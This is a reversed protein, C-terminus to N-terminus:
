AIKHEYSLRSASEKLSEQWTVLRAKVGELRAPQRRPRQQLPPLNYRSVPPIIPVCDLESLHLQGRRHYLDLTLMNAGFTDERAPERLALLLALFALGIFYSLDAVYFVLQALHLAFIM